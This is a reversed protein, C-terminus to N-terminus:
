HVVEKWFVPTSSQEVHKWLMMPGRWGVRTRPHLQAPDMTFSKREAPISQASDLLEVDIPEDLAAWTWGTALSELCYHIPHEEGMVKWKGNGLLEVTHRNGKFFEAAPEPSSECWKGLEEMNRDFIAVDLLGSAPLDEMCLHWLRHAGIWEM